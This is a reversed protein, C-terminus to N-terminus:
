AECAGRHLAEKAGDPLHEAGLHEVVDDGEEAGELPHLRAEPLAGGM